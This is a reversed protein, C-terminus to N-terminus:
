FDFADLSHSWPLSKTEDSFLTINFDGLFHIEDAASAAKETQFSFENIWQMHSSPPRYVSSILCPKTNKLNIELWISEIESSELDNRRKYKIHYAIYVVVDGSRKTNLVDQWLAARHKCEFNFGEM